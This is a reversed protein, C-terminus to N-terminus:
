KINININNFNPTIGFHKKNVVNFHSTIQFFKYNNSIDSWTNYPPSELLKIKHTFDKFLVTLDSISDVQNEIAESVKNIISNPAHNKIMDILENNGYMNSYTPIRLDVYIPYDQYQVLFPIQRGNYNYICSEAKVYQINRSDLFDFIKDDIAKKIHLPLDHDNFMKETNLMSNQKIEDMIINSCKSTSLNKIFYKDM